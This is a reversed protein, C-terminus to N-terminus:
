KFISPFLGQVLLVVSLGCLVTIIIINVINQWPKNVYQEGVLEKDNLLIHLFILIYPLSICSLVQVGLIILELPLKPILCILGAVTICTFYIGYFIPADKIGKDFNQIQGRSEALAWSSTLSVGVAGLLAANLLMVLILNRLWPFWQSVTNALIAPDEFRIGHNYFITGIILMGIGILITFVSGVFTELKEYKLDAINIKKEIVCSNQIYLQYGSISTGITAMCLFIYDKIISNKPVIPLFGHVIDKTSPHIFFAMLIWSLDLLCFVTMINEWKKYGNCAVLWIFAVISTPITILPSIGIIRSVLTIGAFETMLTLFNVILLNTLSLNKWHKGFKESILATIGQKTVIGLRGAMEQCFYTMPLLLLLLWILATGYQSGAQIYTSVAGVDNGQEAALIAPGSVILFTLLSKRYKEPIINFM